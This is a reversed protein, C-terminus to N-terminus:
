IMPMYAFLIEQTTIVPFCSSQQETVEESDVDLRPEEPVSLDQSSFVWHFLTKTWLQPM